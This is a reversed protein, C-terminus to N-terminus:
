RGIEYFRGQGAFGLRTLREGGQRIEIEIHCGYDIVEASLNTLAPNQQQYFALAEREIAGFDGGDNLSVFYNYGFFAVAMVLVAMVVYIPKM